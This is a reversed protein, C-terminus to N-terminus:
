ASCMRTLSEVTDGLGVDEVWSPFHFILIILVQNMAMLQLQSM